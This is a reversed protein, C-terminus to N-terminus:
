EAHAPYIWQTNIQQKLQKADSGTMKVVRDWGQTYVAGAPGLDLCTQYDGTELPRPSDGTLDAIANHGACTGQPMAHQCSQTVIHGADDFPAATDGAAYVAQIGKVRQYQDVDLRGLHDREAPILETLNNARMGATWVVTRTRLRSGDSLTAVRGDFADLTTELRVDIGLDSLAAEIVPRPGPGLEPGITNAREVLVIHPEASAAQKALNQVRDVLETATEIGTFGAGVVVITMLDPEVPESALSALHEDLRTAAEITDVNHIQNSPIAPPTMASGTALILRDYDIWQEPDHPAVVRVRRHETDISDVAALHHQVGIPDLISTLPVTMNSPDAEYLRPRIVMDPRPNVLTITIDDRGAKAVATSAATASWVGAFGGGIIILRM